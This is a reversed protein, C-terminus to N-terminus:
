ISGSEKWVDYFIDYGEPNARVNKFESRIINWNKAWYSLGIPGREQMIDELQCMVQRRENVDLTREAQRLLAIFDPDVWHTENWPVPRGAEDATYALALAMTGLPRHGWSTIGFDLETWQEWYKAPAIMNLVIKFGGPAALEKLMQAIQAEETDNKATLQVTLGDPYGAEALLTKAEGPLYEPIPKECYAPHIPAVHADIALDGQDLHAFDLIRQRDQCLKLANRVRVDDWPPKTVNMRLVQGRATSVEYTSIGPATKLADWEEAAPLILTDIVGGQMAEIREDPDLDFYILEDLYPLPDDDAGMRWYDPRRKFVAQDGITFTELTFPGTGIPQKIFDGEFTRPLIIAPYHFLHEPVGIQPETLHLRLTYDDIREIGTTNLYYLLSFMSSNVAPDLWQNFTFIVDDITFPQGDNFTIGQRLHLTWTQVAEDVEWRELLWPETLNDQNTATLYEGVQRLQNGSELTALRAPHDVPLVRSGIKLTGGRQVAEATDQSASNVGLSCGALAHAVVASTGLLTAFRLFDRRSLKGKLFDTQLDPVAPHMTERNNMM